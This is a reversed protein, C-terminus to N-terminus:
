IEVLFKMEDWIGLNEGLRDSLLMEALHLVAQKDHSIKKKGM